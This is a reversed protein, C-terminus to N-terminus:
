LRFFCSVSNAPHPTASHHKCKTKYEDEIVPGVARVRAYKSEPTINRYLACHIAKKCFHLGSRCMELPKDPHISSMLGKSYQFHLCSWDSSFVKYGVNRNSRRFNHKSPTYSRKRTSTVM